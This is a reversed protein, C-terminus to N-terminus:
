AAVLDAVRYRGSPRRGAILHLLAPVVSEPPPTDSLDEGPMADQLMRTRMEGPDVSWVAVDPEEVALVSSLQDLAAKTAGYGGWTQYAEVAADSSINLIAGRRERLAPLVGQILSLPALTNVRFAAELDSIPYDALPTLPTRGLTSANNVLLDLGGAREAADLLATRHWSDAVDGPLATVQQGGFRRAAADLDDAGRATVILRWGGEALAAALARGLGHSAGTILATRNTMGKVSPIGGPFPIPRRIPETSSM